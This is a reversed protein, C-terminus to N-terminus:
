AGGEEDLIKLGMLGYKEWYEPFADRIRRANDLDARLLADGLKSVFGGGYRRMAAHVCWIENKTFPNDPGLPGGMGRRFLERDFESGAEGTGGTVIGGGM